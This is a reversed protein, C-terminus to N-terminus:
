TDWGNELKIKKLPDYNESNINGFDYDDIMSVDCKGLMPEWKAMLRKAYCDQRWKETNKISELTEEGGLTHIRNPPFAPKTRM